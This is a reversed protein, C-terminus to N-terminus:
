RQRATAVVQNSREFFWLAVATIMGSSAILIWPLGLWGVHKGLDHLVGGLANGLGGGVAFALASFGFYAGRAEPNALQATIIQQPASSLSSGLSFIAVCVLLWWISPAFAVGYLALAMVLVGLMLVHVPAFYRSSYETLVYQFCIAAGTNVLFIWAVADTTGALRTAELTMALSFQSWMLFMGALLVTFRVFRRDKIVMGLGALPTTAGSSVRLEPLFRWNVLFTTLYLGGSILAATEFGIKLLVAGLLSGFAMGLNSIMGFVAYVKPRTAEDSVAAIAANKPADFMAGGLGSLMVSLLLGSFDQVLALSAFGCARILLGSLILGRAGLKDAVAGTLVGLGQQMFTRVGLAIGVSAASWALGNVFHLSILPVVMFFGCWMLLTSLMLTLLARAKQPDTPLGLWFRLRPPM